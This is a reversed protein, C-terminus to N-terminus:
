NKLLGEFEASRERHKKLKLELETIQNKLSELEEYHRDNAASLTLVYNQIKSKLESLESDRTNKYQQMETESSRQKSQLEKKCQKLLGYVLELVRDAKSTFLTAVRGEFFRRFVLKEIPTLVIEFSSFVLSVDDAYRQLSTIEVPGRDDDGEDELYDPIIEEIECENEDGFYSVRYGM